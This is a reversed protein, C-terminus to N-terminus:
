EALQLDSQLRDPRSLRCIQGYHRLRSAAHTFSFTRPLCKVRHGPLMTVKLGTVRHSKIQSDHGTTKTNATM